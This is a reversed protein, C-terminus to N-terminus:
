DDQGRQGSRRVPSDRYLRAGALRQPLKDAEGHAVDHRIIHHIAGTIAESCIEPLRQAAPRQTYGEDLFSRSSAPLEEAHRVALPGAAYCEVLCLHSLAPTSAVRDLLGRLANWVRTSWAEDSDFAAHCADVAGHTAAQQAELLADQKGSFHEYFVARSIRAAAM